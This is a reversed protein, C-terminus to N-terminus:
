LTSCEGHSDTQRILLTDKVTCLVGGHSLAQRGQVLHVSPCVSLHVTQRDTQRDTVLWVTTTGGRFWVSPRVSLRDAEGTTAGRFWLVEKKQEWPVTQTRNIREGNNRHTPPFTIDSFCSASVRM